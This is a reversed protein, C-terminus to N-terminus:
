AKRPQRVKREVPNESIFNNEDFEVEYVREFLQVSTVLANGRSNPNIDYGLDTANDILYQNAKASAKDESLNENVKITHKRDIDKKYVFTIQTAITKITTKM